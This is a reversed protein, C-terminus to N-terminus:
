YVLRIASRLDHDTLHIANSISVVLVEVHELLACYATHHKGRVLGCHQPQRTAVDRADLREHWVNNEWDCSGQAARARSLM